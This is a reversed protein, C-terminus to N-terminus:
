CASIFYLASCIDCRHRILSLGHNLEITFQQISRIVIFHSSQSMQCRSFREALSIWSVTDTQCHCVADTVYAFRECGWMQKFLKIIMANRYPITSFEFYLHTNESSKCSIPAPRSLKPVRCAKGEHLTQLLAPYLAKDGM